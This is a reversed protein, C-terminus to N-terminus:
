DGNSEGEIAQVIQNVKKEGESVQTIDSLKVFVNEIKEEKKDNVKVFKCIAYEDQENIETIKCTEEFCNLKVVKNMQKKLFNIYTM